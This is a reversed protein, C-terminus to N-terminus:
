ENIRENMILNMLENTWEDYAWEDEDMWGDM